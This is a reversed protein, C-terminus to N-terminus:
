LFKFCISLAESIENPVTILDENIKFPGIGSKTKAYRKAYTFFHKPNVKINSIACMEERMRENRHSLLLNADINSISNEINEKRNNTLNLKKLNAKLKKKKRHMVRREKPINQQKKGRKQKFKHSHENVAKLTADLIAKRKESTGSCNKILNKWDIRKM